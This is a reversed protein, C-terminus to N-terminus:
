ALAVALYTKGTGSPGTCFVLDHNQVAAVYAAQGPTRPRIQRGAQMVEIATPQAQGGGASGGLVRTVEEPALGGDRQVLRKLEEFIASAALVAPEEGEIHIQNDRASIGVGLTDRIRRLHQDRTGFLSLLAKSDAVAITAESM